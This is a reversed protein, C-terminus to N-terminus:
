EGFYEQVILTPPPSRPDESCRRSNDDVCLLKVQGLFYQCVYNTIKYESILIKPSEMNEM